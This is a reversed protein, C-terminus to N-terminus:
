NNQISEQIYNKKKPYHVNTVELIQHFRLQICYDKREVNTLVRSNQIFKQFVIYQLQSCRKTESHPVISICHLTPKKWLLHVEVEGEEHHLWRRLSLLSPLIVNWTVIPISFAFNMQSSRGNLCM